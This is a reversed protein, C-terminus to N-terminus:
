AAVTFAGALSQAVLEVTHTGAELHLAGIANFSHPLPVRSGRWDIRSENTVRQGDVQIHVTAASDKALPAYSGDTELFVWVPQELVLQTTLLVNREAVEQDSGLAMYISQRQQLLVPDRTPSPEITPTPPLKTATPPLQIATPAQTPDSAAQPGACAVLVFTVALVLVVRNPGHKM